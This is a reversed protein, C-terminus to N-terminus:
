FVHSNVNLAVLVLYMITDFFRLPVLHGLKYKFPAFMVFHVDYVDQLLYLCYEKMTLM